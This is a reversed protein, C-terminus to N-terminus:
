TLCNMAIAQCVAQSYAENMGPQECCSFGQNVYLMCAMNFQRNLWSVRTLPVSIAKEFLTLVVSSVQSESLKFFSSKESQSPM